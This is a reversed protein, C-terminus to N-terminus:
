NDDLDDGLKILERIKNVDIENVVICLYDKGFFPNSNDKCIDIKEAKLKSFARSAESYDDYEEISPCCLDSNYVVFKM